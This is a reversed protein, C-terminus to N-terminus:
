VILPRLIKVLEQAPAHTVPVVRTIIEESNVKEFDFPNGSQKALVQQVIKTSNGAPVAAFGHVRLVSLFLEYVGEEDLPTSSIVTVNGKIRPDIVFSKGSIESVQTIFERLDTNRLNITWENQAGLPFQIGLLLSLLLFLRM